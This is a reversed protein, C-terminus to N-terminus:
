GNSEGEQHAIKVSQEQAHGCQECVVVRKEQGFEGEIRKADELVESMSRGRKAALAELREQAESPEGPGHDPPMGAWGADPDGYDDVDTPRKDSPLQGEPEGPSAALLRMADDLADLIEADDCWDHRGSIEERRAHEIADRVLKLSKELAREREEVKKVIQSYESRLTRVNEKWAKRLEIERERGDALATVVPAMREVHREEGLARGALFGAGFGAGPGDPVGRSVYADWAKEAETREAQSLKGVM